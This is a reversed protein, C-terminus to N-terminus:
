RFKGCEKQLEERNEEIYQRVEPTPETNNIMWLLYQAPVNAMKEGKHKGYPMLSIDTLM